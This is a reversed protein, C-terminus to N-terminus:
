DTHGIESSTAQTRHVVERTLPTLQSRMKSFIHELSYIFGLLYIGIGILATKKEGSAQLEVGVM